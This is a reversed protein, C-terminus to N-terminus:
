HRIHQRTCSPLHLHTLEEMRLLLRHRLERREARASREEARDQGGGQSHDAYVTGQAGVASQGRSLTVRCAVVEWNKSLSRQFVTGQAGVIGHGRGIKARCAAIDLGQHGKSSMVM